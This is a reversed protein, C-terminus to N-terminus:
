PWLWPLYGGAWSWRRIGEIDGADIGDCIFELGILGDDAFTREARGMVGDRMGAEDSPAVPGLRAFNRKGM